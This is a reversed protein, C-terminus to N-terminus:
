LASSTSASLWFPMLLPRAQMKLSFKEERQWSTSCTRDLLMISVYIRVELDESVSNTELNKSYAIICDIFANPGETAM